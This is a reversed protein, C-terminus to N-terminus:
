RFEVRYSANGIEYYVNFAKVDSTPVPPNRSDSQSKDKLSDDFKGTLKGDSGIVLVTEKDANDSTRTYGARAASVVRKFGDLDEVKVLASGNWRYLEVEVGTVKGSETTFKARPILTVPKGDVIPSSMDFDFRAQEVGDVKLKWLGKPSTTISGGTGYNLMFTTQGDRVDERAYYGGGECTRSSGQTSANASANNYETVTGINTTVIAAPPTFTINRRSSGCLAEYTLGASGKSGIYFGYGKYNSHDPNSWADIVSTYRDTSEWYYFPQAKWEDNMYANAINKLSRGVDALSEAAASSLDLADSTKAESIIDRKSGSVRGLNVDGKLSEGPIASLPRNEPTPLSIFRFSQAESVKDGTKDYAVLLTVPGTEKAENAIKGIGEQIETEPKAKIDDVTMGDTNGGNFDRFAAFMKEWDRVAPNKAAEAVLTAVAGETRVVTARFNGSSDVDFSQPLGAITGARTAFALVGKPAADLLSLDSIAIQGAIM